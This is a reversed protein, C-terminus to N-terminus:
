LAITIFGCPTSASLPLYVLLISSFFWFYVWVGITVQDKIFFVSCDLPLFIANEIFLAPKAHLFISKIKDRQVFSLDL